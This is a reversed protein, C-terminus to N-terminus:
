RVEKATTTRLNGSATKVCGRILAGFALAVTHTAPAYGAALLDDIGKGLAPEWTEVAVTFGAKVFEFAAQGMARAVHRNTRWDADFALHVVRPELVCLIPLVNRWASVGPISLTLVGSLATAVDAKLEGETIRVIEYSRRECLPVHVPAGPGVGGRRRSSVYTYKGSDCAADARVKLGVIQGDLNRVPILLGPMGALGWWRQGNSDNSYLGPIGRCVDAGFREVLLRAIDARSQRPLTSYGRRAIEHDPLGRRHLAKRHRRHLPLGDLLARNVRHLVHPEAPQVPQQISVVGAPAETPANGPLPHVWYDVHSKDLRHAVAGDGSRRCIAYRGDSAIACWDPKGCIPCPHYRNATHWSVM